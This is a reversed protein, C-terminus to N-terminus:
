SESQTSPPFFERYVPNFNNQFLDSELVMEAWLEERYYQLYYRIDSSSIRSESDRVDELKLLITSNGLTIPDAIEGTNMSFVTEFFQDSKVASQLVSESAASELTNGILPSGGWNLTFYGSQQLAKGTTVAQEAFANEDDGLEALFAETEEAIWADIIDGHNWGLWSRVTGTMAEDNFDAETVASDARYIYWGYTTELPATKEGNELEFVLSATDEDLEDSIEYFYRTGLKGGDQAVYDKSYAIATDEFSLDEKDMAKLANNADKETEFTMRSLERSQFFESFARGEQLVLEDPYESQSFVIYQIKREDPSINGIFDIFGENKYMGGLIDEFYQQNIASDELTKRIREREMKTTENYTRSDFNGESNDYYGSEVVIRNLARTSLQFGSKEMYYKKAIFAVTDNFASQWINQRVIEFFDPNQSLFDRNQNNYAAVQNYFYNGQQYRIIKNGFKGFDRSGGSAFSGLAPTVVFAVVILVLLALIAIYRFTSGKSKQKFPSNSSNSSM